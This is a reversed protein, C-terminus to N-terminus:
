WSDFESVLLQPLVPCFARSSDKSYFYLDAFAQSVLM